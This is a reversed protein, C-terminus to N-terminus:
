PKYRDAPSPRDPDSAPGQVETLRRNSLSRDGQEIHDPDSQSPTGPSAGVSRKAFGEVRDEGKQEAMTLARREESLREARGQDPWRRHRDFRCECGTLWWSAHRRASAPDRPREPGETSRRLLVRQEPKRAKPREDAVRRIISPDILPPYPPKLPAAIQESVSPKRAEDVYGGFEPLGLHARLAERCVTQSRPEVVVPAARDRDHRGSEGDKIGLNIM